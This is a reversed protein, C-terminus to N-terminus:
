RELFFRCTNMKVGQLIMRAILAQDQLAEMVTELDARSSSSLWKSSDAVEFSAIVNVM